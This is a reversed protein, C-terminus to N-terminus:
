VESLIGFVEDIQWQELRPRPLNQLQIRRGAWRGTGAGHYQFMGRIRGDEAVGNLMAALKATSAKAAEQRLLLAKRCDPDLGDDSLADLVDNKAVGKLPVGKFKLWDTLQRVANCTSVQNGTVRQMEENLRKKELEVIMIAKEVAEVDVAVGRDNIVRDLLWLERESPALKLLRKYFQREIDVDTKCYDYMKQYKVADDWWTIDGTVEDVKRPQSLQLMTRNGSMDKKVDLGLAPALKEMSGPLSMAYAMAMTCVTQSTSLPPWGYKKTCVVNWIELEFVVNHGVVVGCESVHVYIRDPLEEGLVILEAPEDDFAFGMCMIDTDKHQAYVHVGCKKLDVPSRTEFDIFLQSPM